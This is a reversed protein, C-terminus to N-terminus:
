RQPGHHIAQMPQPQDMRLLQAQQRDFAQVQRMTQQVSPPPQNIDMTAFNAFLSDTAFVIMGKGGSHIGTLDEPKDIGALHCAATAQALRAETTTAPLLGRLTAHLAHQPHDPDSFDRLAGTNEMSRDPQPAAEQRARASGHLQQRTAKGVIGDVALGHDHQFREVAVQTHPGFRGDVDHARLYGLRPLGDQVQVVDDGHPGMGITRLSGDARTWGRDSYVFRNGGPSELTLMGQANLEVDAMEERASSGLGHISASRVAKSQDLHQFIRTGSVPDRMMADLLQVDPNNSFGASLAPDNRAHVISHWAKSLHGDGLELANMLAVGQLANDRGSLIAARADPNLNHVGSDGVWAKTQEATMSGEQLRRLLAGGKNENQNYLKVTMAVIEAVEAPDHKNLDQLWPILSLPKGIEQWTRDIQGQDLQRVFTRGSDSRLYSDLRSQESATLSNGSQGGTNLRRNLSAIENNNFLQDKPAWKQYNTLLDGVEQKHRNNSSLDTQIIGVSWGSNGTSHTLSYASTPGIESARGVANYVLADFTSRDLPDYTYAQAM